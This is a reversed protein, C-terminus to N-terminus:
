HKYCQLCCIPHPATETGRSLPGARSVRLLIKVNERNEPEEDEAMGKDPWERVAPFRTVNETVLRYWSPPGSTGSDDEKASSIGAERKAAEDKALEEARRLLEVRQYAADSREEAKKLLPL